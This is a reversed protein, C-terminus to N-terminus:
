LKLSFPVVYWKMEHYATASLNMESFDFVFLVFSGRKTNKNTARLHAHTKMHTHKYPLWHSYPFFTYWFMVIHGICAFPSCFHTCHATHTGICTVCHEYNLKLECEFPQGLLHIRIRNQEWRIHHKSVMKATDNAIFAYIHCCCRCFFCVLFFSHSLALTHFLTPSCASFFISFSCM